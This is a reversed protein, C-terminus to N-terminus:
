HSIDHILGAIQELLPAKFRRLLMFVGLSHNYRNYDPNCFSPCGPYYGAMSIKKLRQLEPSNILDVLVPESIEFTGYLPASIQM